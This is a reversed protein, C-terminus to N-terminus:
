NADSGGEDDSKDDDSDGNSDLESDVSNRANAPQKGVSNASQTLRQGKAVPEELMANTRIPARSQTQTQSVRRTSSIPEEESDNDDNEPEVGVPDYTTTPQKGAPKTASFTLTLRQRKTVPEELEPNTRIPARSQTKTQSARRTSPVPEEELDSDDNELEVDIPDCTTTRQKGASKTTSHTLRQRKSAAPDIDADTAATCKSSKGSNSGSNSCTTKQASPKTPKTSPLDEDSPDEVDSEMPKKARGSKTSSSSGMDDTDSGQSPKKSRPNNTVRNRGADDDRAARHHEKRTGALYGKVM